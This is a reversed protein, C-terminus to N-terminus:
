TSTFITAKRTPRPLMGPQNFRWLNQDQPRLLLFDLMKYNTLLIDPPDEQQMAHNSIGHDEGMVTEGGGQSAGPDSPDYRGTYNGVRIGADRLQKDKWIVKAFRKEQDSALANMPYLIIAKIGKQGQKRARLCHDLIPYAFCETKGSGTGTTVITPQPKQGKSSLRMWSQWQHRFPHFPPRIDLPMKADAAAPRFPRRLQVWPGKFLGTDPDELFRMFAREVQRDRFDFTSQLYFLVQKCINEALHAPLM